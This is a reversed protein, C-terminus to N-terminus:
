FKIPKSTKEQHQNYKDMLLEELLFQVEKFCNEGTDGNKYKQTYLCDYLIKDFIQLYIEYDLYINDLEILIYSDVSKINLPTLQQERINNYTCVAKLTNKVIGAFYDGDESTRSDPTHLVVPSDIRKLSIKLNADPYFKDFTFLVDLFHKYTQHKPSMEFFAQDLVINKGDFEFIPLISKSNEKIKKLIENERDTKLEKKELLLLIQAQYESQYLLPIALSNQIIYSSFAEKVWPHKQYTIENIFASQYIKDFYYPSKDNNVFSVHKFFLLNLFDESYKQKKNIFQIITPIRIQIFKEILKQLFYDAQMFEHKKIPLHQNFLHLIKLLHNPKVTQHPIDMKYPHKLIIDKIDKREIKKFLTHRIDMSNHLINFTNNTFNQEHNVGIYYGNSYLTQIFGNIM